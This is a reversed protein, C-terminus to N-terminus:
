GCSSGSYRSIFDYKADMGQPDYPGKSIANKTQLVHTQGEM